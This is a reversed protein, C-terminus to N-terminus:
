LERYWSWMIEVKQTPSLFDLNPVSPLDLDSIDIQELFKGVDLFQKGQETKTTLGEIITGFNREPM